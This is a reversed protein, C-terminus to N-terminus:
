RHWAACLTGCFLSQTLGQVSQMKDQRSECGLVSCPQTSQRRNCHTPISYIMRQVVRNRIRSLIASCVQLAIAAKLNRPPELAPMLCMCLAGAVLAAACDDACTFCRAHGMKGSIVGIIALLPRSNWM